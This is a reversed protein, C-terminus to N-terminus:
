SSFENLPLTMKLFEYVPNSINIGYKKISNLTLLSIANDYLKNDYIVWIGLFDDKDVSNNECLDELIQDGVNKIFFDKQEDDYNSLTKNIDNFSGSVYADYQAMNTSVDIETLKHMLALKISQLKNLESTNM